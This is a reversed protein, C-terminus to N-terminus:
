RCKTCSLPVSNPSYKRLVAFEFSLDGMESNLEVDQMHLGACCCHSERDYRAWTGDNFHSKGITSGFLNYMNTFKEKMLFTQEQSMTTLLYKPVWSLCQAFDARFFEKSYPLVRGTM